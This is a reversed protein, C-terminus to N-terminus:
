LLGTLSECIIAKARYFIITCCITIIVYATITYSHGSSVMAMYDSYDTLQLWLITYNIIRYVLLVICFLYLIFFKYCM